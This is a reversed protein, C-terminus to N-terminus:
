LERKVKSEMSEDEADNAAAEPTEAVVDAGAMEVDSIDQMNEM